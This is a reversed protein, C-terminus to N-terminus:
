WWWAMNFAHSLIISYLLNRSPLGHRFSWNSSIFLMFMPLQFFTGCFQSLQFFTTSCTLVKYLNYRKILLLLLLLLLLLHLLFSSYSASSSSVSSSSAAAAATSSSSSSSSSCFFQRPSGSPVLYRRRVPPIGVPILIQYM